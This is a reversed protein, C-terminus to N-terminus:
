RSRGWGARAERHAERVTEAGQHDGVLEHAQALAGAEVDAGLELIADLREPTPADGVTLPVGAQASASREFHSVVASLAPLTGIGDAAERVPIGAERLHRQEHADKLSAAHESGRLESAAKMPIGWFGLTTITARTDAKSERAERLRSREQEFQEGASRGTAITAGLRDLEADPLFAIAEDIEVASMTMKRAEKKSTTNDFNGHISRARIL